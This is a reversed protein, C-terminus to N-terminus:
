SSASPAQRSRRTRRIRRRAPESAVGPNVPRAPAIDEDQHGRQVLDGLDGDVVVRGVQRRARGGCSEVVREVRGLTADCRREHEGLGGAPEGARDCRGPRQRRGTRREVRAARRAGRTSATRHRVPGRRDNVVDSTDGHAGPERELLPRQEGFRDDGRETQGVVRGDDDQAAMAALGDVVRMRRREVAAGTAARRPARACPDGHGDEVVGLYAPSTSRPIVIGASVQNTAASCSVVASRTVTRSRPSGRRRGRGRRHAAAGGRRRRRVCRARGRGAGAPCRRAFHAVSARSACTRGSHPRAPLADNMMEDRRHRRAVIQLTSTGPCSRPRARGRRTHSSRGHVAGSTTACHIEDCYPKSRRVRSRRRRRCSAACGPRRCRRPRRGTRHGRPRGASSDTISPSCRAWTGSRSRATTCAGSSRMPPIMRRLLPSRSSSSPSHIWTTARPAVVIRPREACRAAAPLRPVEGVVRQGFM